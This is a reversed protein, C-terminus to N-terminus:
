KKIIASGALCVGGLISTIGGLIAGFGLNGYKFMGISEIPSVAFQNVFFFMIGAAIGTLAGLLPFFKNKPNAISFIAFAISVFVLIMLILGIFSFSVIKIGIDSTYGFIIQNIKLDILCDKTGELFLCVASIVFIVASGLALFVNTNNKSKRKKAM